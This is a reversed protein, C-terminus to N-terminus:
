RPTASSKCVILAAGIVPGSLTGRGDLNTAAGRTLTGYEGGDAECDRM